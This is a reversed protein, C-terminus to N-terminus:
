KVLYKKEVSGDDYIHLQFGKNTTERGLIDITHLLKRNINNEHITSNIEICECLDNYIGIDENELECPNSPFSCSGDNETVFTSYNCATDDDCGYIEWLDCIGDNDTDGDVTMGTGDIEGSCSDCGYAYECSDNSTNANENYNCAQSDTCGLIIIPNGDSDYTV